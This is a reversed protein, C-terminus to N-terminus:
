LRGFASHDILHNRPVLGSGSGDPLSVQNPTAAPIHTATAWPSQHPLPNDHASQYSSLDDPPSVQAWGAEAEALITM